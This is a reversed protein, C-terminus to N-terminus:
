DAVHRQHHGASYQILVLHPWASNSFLILVNEIGNQDLALAERGICVCLLEIITKWKSEDLVSPSWNTELVFENTIQNKSVVRTLTSTWGSVLKVISIIHYYM